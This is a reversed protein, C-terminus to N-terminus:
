AMNKYPRLLVMNPMKKHIAQISKDELASVSVGVVDAAVYERILKILVMSDLGGVSCYVKGEFYEYFEQAKCIAWTRKVDYPLKQLEMFKIPDM